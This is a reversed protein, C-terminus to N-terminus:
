YSANAVLIGAGIGAGLGGLSQLWARRPPLPARRGGPALYHHALPVTVGSAFGIAGGALVDSPFHKGASVRLTATMGALLGGAFGVGAREAWGAQPRSLLHDTMAFAAGCFSSSAHSSPMSEFAESAAVDYASGGPRRDAPVYTYPRPRDTSNKIIMSVGTAVLFSELYVVSRRLTGGIRAGPPQCAFAVAMPYAMAAASGVDSADLARTDFRGIQERDFSWRVDGPDLGQSPVPRVSVDIFGALGVLGAGGGLLAADRTWRLEPQVPPAAPVARAVLAGLAVILAIVTRRFGPSL